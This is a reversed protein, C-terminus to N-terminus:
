WLNMFLDKLEAIVMMDINLFTKRYEMLMKSYSEGGQKGSVSELYGETTNVAVNRSDNGSINNSKTGNTESDNKSSDTITNGNTGSVTTTDNTSKNVLRANTLYTDNELNTIAGQPTDSYKDTNSGTGVTTTTNGTTGNAETTGSGTQANTIKSTEAITEAKTGTETKTTANTTDHKRTVEFDYLPNFELLESKYLQNFYPMIENMKTSLWLKWLGVSEACIERTYYHKLIKRELIPRYNEDFIPFDFDFIKPVATTLIEDVSKYGVSESKGSEYECIFRVETTYKSM